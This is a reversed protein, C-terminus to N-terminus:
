KKVPVKNIVWSTWKNNKSQSDGTKQVSFWEPIELWQPSGDKKFLWKDPTCADANTDSCNSWLGQGVAVYLAFDKSDNFTKYYFNNYKTNIVEIVTEQPYMGKENKYQEIKELSPGYYKELSNVISFPILSLSLRTNLILIVITLFSATMMEKRNKLKWGILNVLFILILIITLISYFVLMLETIQSINGIVWVYCLVMPPIAIAAMYALVKIWFGKIGEINKTFKNAIIFLIIIALSVVCALIINLVM